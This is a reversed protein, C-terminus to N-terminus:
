CCCCCCCCFCCCCCCVRHEELQANLELPAQVVHALPVSTAHEAVSVEEDQEVHRERQQQAHAHPAQAEVRVGLVQRVHAVTARQAVHLGDIVREREVLVLSVEAVLQEIEAVEELKDHQRACRRALALSRAVVVQEPGLVVHDVLGNEGLVVVEEVRNGSEVDFIDDVVVVACCYCGCCWWEGGGGGVVTAAAAAAAAACVLWNRQAVVCVHLVQARSAQLLTRDLAAQHAVLIHLLCHEAAPDGVLVFIGLRRKAVRCHAVAEADVHEKALIPALHQLHLRAVLRVVDHAVAVRNHVGAGQAIAEVHEGGGLRLPPARHAEHLAKGSVHLLLHGLVAPRMEVDREVRRVRQLVLDRAVRDAVHTEHHAGEHAEPEREQEDHPEVRREVDARAAARVRAEDEVHAADEQREANESLEREGYEGRETQEGDEAYM